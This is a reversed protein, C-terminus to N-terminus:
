TMVGSVRTVTFPGGLYDNSRANINFATIPFIDYINRTKRKTGDIWLTQLGNDIYIQATHWLGAGPAWYLCGASDWSCFWNYTSGYGTSYYFLSAINADVCNDTAGGGGTYFSYSICIPFDIFLPKITKLGQAGWAAKIRRNAADESYPYAPDINTYKDLYIGDAFDDFFLIDSSPTAASIRRRQASYWENRFRKFM